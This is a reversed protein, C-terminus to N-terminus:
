PCATRTSARSRASARAPPIGLVQAIAARKPRRYPVYSGYSTIGVAM